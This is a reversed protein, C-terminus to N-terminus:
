PRLDKEIFVRCGPLAASLSVEDSAAWAKAQDQPVRVVITDASFEADVAEGECLLAFHLPRRPLNVTERLDVGACLKAIDEPALRLRLDDGTLRLKM